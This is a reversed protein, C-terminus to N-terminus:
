GQYKTFLPKRSRTCSLYRFPYKQAIEMIKTLEFPNGLKLGGHLPEIVEFRGRNGEGFRQNAMSSDLYSNDGLSSFKM